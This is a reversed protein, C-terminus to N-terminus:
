RDPRPNRLSVIAGRTFSPLVNLVEERNVRGLMEALTDFELVEGFWLWDRALRDALELNSQAGSVFRGLLYQRAEDIEAQSPPETRLRELEARLLDRMAPLNGPDVGMGLTVWGDTGNTHYASDIYYVLGRRSIAEKGLRGEYGHSLVYLAMWWAAAGAQRPGPARVVYGLQEQAVPTALTSELELRVTDNLSAQSGRVAVPLGGFADDLDKLAAAPDMDGTLVFLLPLTQGSPGAPDPKLGLVDQFHLELRGGPQDAAPPASSEAAPRARFVEGLAAYVADLEGPLGKFDLSTVGWVPENPRSEAGTAFAPGPVVAKLLVTPSLPSRQIIVPTGNRLRGTFPPSAQGANSGTDHGRPEAAGSVPTKATGASQRASVEPGETGVGRAGQVDPPPPGYWGITRQEPGLYRNLVRWVDAREVREVSQVLGTLVDLADMGGFYALQHAADETTQLDFLLERVVGRKALRLAQEMSAEGGELDRELASVARGVAAELASEDGDAPLSGSVTFVYDQASPPYWTAMDDTVRGLPSDPRAPTGWDNQLFNVGSGGALLEQLVLFAAFDPRHVSPARWAMDFYRRDAAGHLRIRREGRQPPEVTVPDPTPPHGELVGFLSQVRRRVDEKRVDGVVALVANGPQYHQRYFATLDEHRIGAVDSEWGITNNRYPHALFSVYLVNDHLVTAPDNEYGHMEALVAGREAAVDGAPISLRTMRDAEIRLLLDLDERPATAFYTTQDLWTYGHWEGGVAYISSVLGTDPFNESSRFAMHELFHALGTAGAPEHKAGVRYLMQVSVLPFAPEDLVILTLGNDLREVTAAALDLHARAPWPALCLLFLLLPWTRQRRGCRLAEAPM